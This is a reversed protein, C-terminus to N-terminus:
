DDAAQGNTLEVIEVGSPGASLAIEGNILRLAEQGFAEMRWGELAKVGDRLGQALDELESSSAILRQAVGLKDAKAKLLVKLLDSLAQAGPRPPMHHRPNHPPQEPPAEEGAVVAALIADCVEPKRGERQLSRSGLLQERTKPRNAAIELVADDKLIRGRPVDRKRAEDERWKALSKVVALFRSDNSRTKVRRWAEDPDVVYTSLARLVAMEAEVWSSRGSKELQDGLSEYVVRLHTVDGAAYNLQKSSLPRRAWDTFRSSKDLQANAIRKVLTEYGVQDGYGCVMAAVQTDFIPIPVVGALNVFIEIDQRAAHFVKLTSTDAMLTFVPELDIDAMPDILFVAEEGWNGAARALQLLCLKPWYTRERMFETDITIYPAEALIGCASDLEDQNTILHM